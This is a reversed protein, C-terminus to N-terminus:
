RLTLAVGDSFNSTAIGLVSDRFWAQFHVTEGAIMAVPGTPTPIADLDIALQIEGNAGSSQIQGPGVYRGIAGSLCLDGISGGANAVFGRDRSALFFGFTNVPMNNCVLTVDNSEILADGLAQVDAAVGTSNAAASTCYDIGLQNRQNIYVRTDSCRGIILDQDGDNDLDFIAIDHVGELEPLGLAGFNGGSREERLLVQSGPDGGRNRFIHLRRSCGAIDVDVDCIIAEPFEDGNLDLIYNNSGFGDDTGFVLAGSWIVRGLGDNGQNLIYRDDADDSVIMDNRGDANLDGVAVHYPAGTYPEQLINFFGENNPNNYAVSARTLGGTQGSGSISIVDEAGDGNMDAIAAATGFSSGRMANTMRAQSEDIFFGTGDNILLRDNLDVQAQQEYHSFYLDLAGDGTVDGLAVGCMNPYTGWDPIRASEHLFGRWVGGIEGLNIYVRPHSIEKPQNPSFTTATVFDLWGDGNVDGIVVDRDNTRTRFGQDGPVDSAVAFQDTRDTLVGNENMYLVNFRRGTTTFPEKRVSILDIWGDRDFDGWAFDKEQTDDLGLQPSAVLRSDDRVFQAWDINQAVGNPTLLLAALVAASLSLPRM